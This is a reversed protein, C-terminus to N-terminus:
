EGSAKDNARGLTQQVHDKFRLKDKPDPVPPMPPPTRGALDIERLVSIHGLWQNDDPAPSAWCLHCLNGDDAVRYTLWAYLEPIEKGIEGLSKDRASWSLLNPQLALRLDQRSEAEDPFAFVDDTRCAHALVGTARIQLWHWRGRPMPTMEASFPLDGRRCFELIRYAIGVRRIHGRLDRGLVNNLITGDGYLDDALLVGEHAARALAL